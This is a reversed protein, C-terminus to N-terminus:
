PSKRETIELYFKANPYNEEAALTAKFERIAGERDGTERLAMGLGFHVGPDRPRLLILKRFELASNTADGNELYAVALNDRAEFNDPQLALARLFEGISGLTDGRANLARGTENHRQSTEPLNDPSELAGRAAGADGKKELMRALNLQAKPLLPNLSIAERVQAIAEEFQGADALVLGFNYHAIAFDPKAVVAAHLSKLAGARDGKAALDLGVNSLHRSEDALVSRHNLQEVQKLEVQASSEDHQALFLRALTYHGDALDPNSRLAAELAGRAEDIKGEGLLCKGLRVHAEAYNPKSAIALRYEAIAADIQSAAERAMGLNLHAEAYNPWLRIAHEFLPVAEDSRNMSVLAVGLLNLAEPYEPRIKLAARCEEAAQPWDLKDKPQAILTFALRYHAEAYDPKAEIARRFEDEADRMDGLQGFILGLQYHARPDHPNQKLATQIESITQSSAAAALLSLSLLISRM